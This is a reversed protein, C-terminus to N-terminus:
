GDNLTGEPGAYGDPRLAPAVSQLWGVLAAEIQRNASWGSVATARRLWTRLDPDLRVTMAAM